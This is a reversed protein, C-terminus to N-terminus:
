KSKQTMNKVSRKSMSLGTNIMPKILIHLLDCCLIIAPQKKLGKKKTVIIIYYDKGCVM